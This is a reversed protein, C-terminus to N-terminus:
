ERGSKMEKEKEKPEKQRPKEEDQEEDEEEPLPTVVARVSAIRREEVSLVSFEVNQYTISPTEEQTPIRGILDMLFGGITDYDADEPLTIGLLEAVDDTDASGDIVYTNVAVQSFEEQEDDYEDQINGVIAELLDEMTVIGATGGYEDVVVAMQVKKATFEDFLEQCSNSEPVYLVDRLFDKILFTDTSTCGVLCLLDKVYMVGIINDVDNQYVPIRSFGKNIALYVIDSIKADIDVATVDTRHTMVDSATLDGFEIINNIMEKESEEIVGNENGADVMMLIEEQTVNGDPAETPAGLMKSFAHSIGTNVAVFPRLLTLFARVPGVCSLAIKESACSALKRPLIDTLVTLVAVTLVVLLVVAIAWRLGRSGIFSAMWGVLPKAFACASMVCVFASITLKCMSVAMLFVNPRDILKLLKKAKRNGEQAWKRVKADNLEVIASECFVFVGLLVIAICLCIVIWTINGGDPDLM